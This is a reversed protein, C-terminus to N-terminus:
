RGAAASLAAAPALFDAARRIVTPDRLIRHHGLGRTLVLRAQPWARAFARGDRPPVRSDRADHIVLLAVRRSGPTAAARVRDCRVGYRREIRRKLSERGKRGVGLRRAFRDLYTELAAAPALFVAREARVGDQIALAAASAGLSHGVVGFLGGEANEIERIAAAFEFLMGGRGPSAGHGPADFAVAACGREVIPAVFEALRGSHGGWGHVLLVAPGEGWRWVALRRSGLRLPCSKGTALLRRERRTTRCLPPLRLLAEACVGALGPSVLELTGFSTRLACLGLRALDRRLEPRTNM